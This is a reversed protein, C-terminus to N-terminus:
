ARCRRHLVRGVNMEDVLQSTSLPPVLKKVCTYIVQRFLSYVCVCVMVTGQFPCRCSFNTPSKCRRPGLGHWLILGPGRYQARRTIFGLRNICPDRHTTSETPGDDLPTSLAPIKGTRSALPTVSLIM